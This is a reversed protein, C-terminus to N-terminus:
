HGDIIKLTSQSAKKFPLMEVEEKQIEQQYKKEDIERGMGDGYVVVRQDGYVWPSALIIHKPGFDTLLNYLIRRTEGTVPNTFSFLEDTKIVRIIEQEFDGDPLYGLRGFQAYLASHIGTLEKLEKNLAKKRNVEKYVGCGTLFLSFLTITIATKM